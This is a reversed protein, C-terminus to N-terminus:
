YAIESLVKISPYSITGKMALMVPSEYDDKDYFSHLDPTNVEKSICIPTKGRGIPEVKVIKLRKSYWVAAWDIAATLTTFVMIGLTGKKATTVKGPIYQLCYPNKYHLMASKGSKTVVKYRVM